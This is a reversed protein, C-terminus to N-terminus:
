PRGTSSAACFASGPRTSRAHRSSPRCSFRRRRTRTTSTTPRPSPRCAAPPISSRRRRIHPCVCMSRTRKASTTTWGAWTPSSASRSRHMAWSRHQCDWLPQTPRQSPSRGRATRPEYEGSLFFLPKDHVIPGGVNVSYTAWQQFPKAGQTLSPKSILGPRRELVLGEGHFDNTGGKTIFKTIGGVTRGYQADMAGAIVRIEKVREPSFIDLRGPGGRQTNDVGDIMFAKRQMGGFAFTPNGFEDDRTGNLGPVLLALNFTNRSTDPANEISRQNLGDSVDYTETNLISANAQVTVIDSASGNRLTVTVPASYGLRVDIGTQEFSEFNPSSVTLRYPGVPLLPVTFSGDPGSVVTRFLGTDTDTATVAANPIVAHTSDEVVGTISSVVSSTQGVAVPVLGVSAVLAVSSFACISRLSAHATGLIKM